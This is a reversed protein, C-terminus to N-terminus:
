LASGPLQRRQVICPSLHAWGAATLGVNQGKNIPKECLTCSGNRAAKRVRAAAVLSRKRPHPRTM